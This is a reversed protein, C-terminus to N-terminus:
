WQRMHNWSDRSLVSTFTGDHTSAPPICVRVCVCTSLGGRRRGLRAGRPNNSAAERGKAESHRSQQKAQVATYLPPWSIMASGKPRCFAQSFLPSQPTVLRQSYTNRVLIHFRKSTGVCPDAADTSSWTTATTGYVDVMENSRGIARCSPARSKITEKESQFTCEAEM